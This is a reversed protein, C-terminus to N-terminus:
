NNLVDGISEGYKSIISLADKKGELRIPSVRPSWEQYPTEKYLIILEAVADSFPERAMADKEVGHPERVKASKEVIPIAEVGHETLKNEKPPQTIVTKKSGFLKGLLSM